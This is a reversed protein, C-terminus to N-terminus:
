CNAHTDDHEETVERLLDAICAAVRAFDATIAQRARQASTTQTLQDLRLEWALANQVAVDLAALGRRDGLHDGLDDGIEVKFNTWIERASREGSPGRRTRLLADRAARQVACADADKPLLALPLQLHKGLDHKLDLLAYLLAESDKMTRM